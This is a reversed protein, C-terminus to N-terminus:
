LRRHLGHRAAAASCRSVSCLAHQHWACVVLCIVGLRVRSGATTSASIVCSILTALVRLERLRTWGTCSRPPTLPSWCARPTTASIQPSRLLMAVLPVRAYFCGRGARRGAGRLRVHTTTLSAAACTPILTPLLRSIRTCLPSSVAKANLANLANLAAQHHLSSECPIAPLTQIQPPHAQQSHATCHIRRGIHAISSCM